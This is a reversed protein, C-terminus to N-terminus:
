LGPSVAAIAILDVIIISIFTAIFGTIAMGALLMRLSRLGRYPILMLIILLSVHELSLKISHLIIDTLSRIEIVPTLHEFVYLLPNLIILLPYAIGLILGIAFLWKGSM